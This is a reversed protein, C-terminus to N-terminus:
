KFITDFKKMLWYERYTRISTLHKYYIQETNGETPKVSQIILTWNGQEISHRHPSHPIQPPNEM